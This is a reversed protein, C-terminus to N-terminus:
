VQGTRSVLVDQTVSVVLQAWTSDPQDVLFPGYQGAPTTFHWGLGVPQGTQPIVGYIAVGGLKVYWGEQLDASQSVQASLLLVVIAVAVVFKKM